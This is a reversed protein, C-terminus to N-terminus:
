RTHKEAQEITQRLYQRFSATDGEMLYCELNASFGAPLPIENLQGVIKPSFLQPYEALLHLLGLREKIVAPDVREYQKGDPESLRRHRIEGYWWRALLFVATLAFLLLFGFFPPRQRAQPRQPASDKPTRFDPQKQQSPRSTGAGTWQEIGLSLDYAERLDPDSLLQYAKNIEKFRKEAWEAGGNLDPHYRKSLRRFASRIEEPTASPACELVEYLTKIAM